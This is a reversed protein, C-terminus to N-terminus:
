NKAEDVLEEEVENDFGCMEQAKLKIDSLEGPSLMAGLLATPSKVQYSDQLEANMLDPFVICAVALETLYLEVQFEKTTQNKIAKGNKGIVPVAKYCKARLKSDAESTLGKMEWLLPKGAEDLFSKSAAYFENEKEIKNPKLFGALSKM